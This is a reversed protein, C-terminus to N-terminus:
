RRRGPEVAQSDQFLKADLDAGRAQRDDNEGCGLALRFLLRQVEARV